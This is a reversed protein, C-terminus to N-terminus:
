RSRQGSWVDLERLAADYLGDDLEESSIEAPPVGAELPWYAGAADRFLVEVSFKSTRRVSVLELNRQRLTAALADKLPVPSSGVIAGILGGALAGGAGGGLGLGV